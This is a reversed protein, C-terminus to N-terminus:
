YGEIPPIGKPEAKKASAQADGTFFNSMGGGIARYRQYSESNTLIDKGAKQCPGRKWIHVPKGRKGYVYATPIDRMMNRIAFLPNKQTILSKFVNTVKRM